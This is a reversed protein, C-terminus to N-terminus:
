LVITELDILQNLYTSVVLSKGNNTHNPSNSASCTLCIHSTQNKIKILCRYKLSIHNLTAGLVSVLFIRTWLLNSHMSLNHYDNYTWYDVYDNYMVQDNYSVLDVINQMHM